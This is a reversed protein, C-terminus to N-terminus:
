AEQNTHTPIHSIVNSNQQAHQTHSTAAKLKQGLHNKQVSYWTTSELKQKM